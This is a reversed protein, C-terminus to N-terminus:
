GKVLVAKQKKDTKYSVNAFNFETLFSSLLAAEVKERNLLDGREQKVSTVPSNLGCQCILRYLSLDNNVNLSFGHYCVGHSVKIGIAGIKKGSVWVGTRGQWRYAKIKFAALTNLMVQELQRLYYHLDYSLGLNLIPYVVLQGPLHLTIGGGRDSFCLKLQYQALKDPAVLLQKLNGGKGLTVVPFHETIILFNKESALCNKALRHQWQLCAKYDTLPLSLVTLSKFFKKWNM